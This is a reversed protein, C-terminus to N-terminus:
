EYNKNSKRDQVQQTIIEGQKNQEELTWKDTVTTVLWVNGSQRFVQTSLGYIENFSKELESVTMKPSIIIKGENIITRSEALTKNLNTIPQKISVGSGLLPSKKKFFELRLFPYLLSFRQQIYDFTNNDDIQILM